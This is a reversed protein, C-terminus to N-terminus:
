KVVHWLTHIDLCIMDTLDSAETAPASPLRLPQTHKKRFM